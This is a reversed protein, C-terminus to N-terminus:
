KSWNLLASHQSADDVGEVILLDGSNHHSSYGKRIVDMDEAITVYNNEKGQGDVPNCVLLKGPAYLAALVPLDYASLARPVLSHIYGSFYYEDEVIARYSSYPGILALRKIQHDLLAAHLAEPAAHGKAVCYIEDTGFFKEAWTALRNIDGARIAVISRDLLVTGFLLNYSIGNIYSDGKYRGPGTEGTGLLDPAIVTYGNSLLLRLERDNERAAAKGDPHLYLIVKERNSGEPEILWFPVPYEGEGQIYYKDLPYSDWHSRGAYVAEVQEETYRYGSIVAAKELVKDRFNVPDERIAKLWDNGSSSEFNISFVTEGHLSTAVQGSSTVRLEEDKLMETQLDESTGPNKLHKQFFAYKAERNKRTSAHIGMDEAMEFNGSKGYVSYVEAAEKVTKRAGHISFFDNVTAVILTPKPARAIIFDPHDLGRAIFGPLNQEADQPGIVNLVMEMNSIYCEPAAAYIRDDLAAILATQLGGGSRGTIGIRSPDVEPRRILYDVARIGDWAMFAAMSNGALFAQAGAYSHAHTSKKLKSGGTEHDYYALREGQSIPDFAFVIFGKRVFNLIEHQYVQSRYAGSAHGSCLIIVPKKKESNDPIFMSSTVYFGPRSEFLINEVTFNNRDIISTVIANLPTKAPFPGVIQELTSKIESQYVQWDEKSNQSDVKQRRKELAIFAQDKLHQYLSNELDSYGYWIIQNNKGEYFVDAEEQASLSLGSFLFAVFLAISKLIYNGIGM